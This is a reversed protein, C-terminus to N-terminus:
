RIVIRYWFNAEPRTALDNAYLFADGLAVFKAVEVLERSKSPWDRPESKFFGVTVWKRKHNYYNAIECLREMISGKEQYCSKQVQVNARKSRSTQVNQDPRKVM